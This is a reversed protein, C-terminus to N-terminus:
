LHVDQWMQKPLTEYDSVRMGIPLPLNFDPVTVVRSPDQKRCIRNREVIWKQNENNPDFHNIILSSDAM